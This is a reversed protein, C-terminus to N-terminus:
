DLRNEDPNRAYAARRIRQIRHSVAISKRISRLEQREDKTLPRADHIAERIITRATDLPVDFWEGRLMYDRLQYHIYRETMRPNPIHARQQAFVQLTAPFGTQMQSKREAPDASIGIKLPGAESPGICYLYQPAAPKTKGASELMREALYRRWALIVGQQARALTVKIPREVTDLNFEAKIKPWLLAERVQPQLRYKALLRLTPNKRRMAQLTRGPMTTLALRIPGRDNAGIFVVYPPVDPYKM